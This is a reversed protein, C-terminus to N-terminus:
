LNFDGTTLVQGALGQLVVEMDAVGNGDSDIQVLLNAGSNQYRIQGVGTNSFAGTGLFSFAQDGPTVADADMLAFGLKDTGIVFDTIQDAAAGLGSANASQYRFVDVGAGGTLIDAGGAGEIKDNGNGGNITDALNGGRLFDFGDGGNLTNSVGLM